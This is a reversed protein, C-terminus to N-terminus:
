EGAERDARRDVKLTVQCTDSDEDGFCLHTVSLRSGIRGSAAGVSPLDLPRQRGSADRRRLLPGFAADGSISAGLDHSAIIDFGDHATGLKFQMLFIRWRRGGPGSVEYRM